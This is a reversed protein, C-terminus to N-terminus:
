VDGEEQLFLLSRWPAGAAGGPGWTGEEQGEGAPGYSVSRGLTGAEPLRRGRSRSGWGVGDAALNTTETGQCKGAWIWGRRDM